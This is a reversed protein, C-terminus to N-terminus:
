GKPGIIGIMRGTVGAERRHSFFLNPQSVTCGPDIDVEGVGAEQLQVALAGKLDVLAKGPHEPGRPRILQEAAPGFAARFEAAVEGGVEFQDFSICPGIAAAIGVNSLTRMARVAEPLVGAVVGRWGAHVAGVVRGDTSALLVPCCDAVRVAVVCSPDDTVIADAKVDGWVIEGSGLADALPDRRVFHVAAGHVQHVQIIRRGACGLAEAVSTFNAEINAKPDRAVGPPLEGPNGFNM